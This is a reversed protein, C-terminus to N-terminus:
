CRIAKNMRLVTQIFQRLNERGHTQTMLKTIASDCSWLNILITDALDNQERGVAKLRLEIEEEVRSPCQCDGQECDEHSGTAGSCIM